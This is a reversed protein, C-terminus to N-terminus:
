LLPRAAVGGMGILMILSVGFATSRLLKQNGYYFAMHLVRCGVWGWAFGGLWAADAAAMVGAVAFLAFAPISEGTNAHSRAARFLFSDSNAPIPFGAKHGARIATIDAIVLQVLFLFGAAVMASLTLAYVGALYEM